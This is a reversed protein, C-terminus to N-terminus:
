DWNWVNSVERVNTVFDVDDADGGRLAALARRDAARMGRHAEAKLGGKNFYYGHRTDRSATFCRSHNTKM